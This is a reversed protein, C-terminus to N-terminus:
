LNSAFQWFSELNKYDKLYLDCQKKMDEQNTETEDFIGVVKFGDVSATKAAYLADEVVITKGKTSQLLQQAKRYILPNRKSEGVEECTFIEEFYHSIGLRSFASVIMERTTVTAICMKIKRHSISDLLEIVNPKLMVEFKYFDEISHNIGANIEEASLTVGYEKQMYAISQAVSMASIERDFGEKPTYGIGSLYRSGLNQWMGMSELLTGDVDFIIGEVM